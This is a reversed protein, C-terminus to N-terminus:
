NWRGNLMGAVVVPNFSKRYMQYLFKTVTIAAPHTLNCGVQRLWQYFAPDEETQMAIIQLREAIQINNKNCM